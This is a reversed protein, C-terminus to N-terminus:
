RPWYASYGKPLNPFRGSQPPNSEPRDGASRTATSFGNSHTPIRCSCARAGPYSRRSAAAAFGGHLRRGGRGSSAGRRRPTRHAGFRHVGGWRHDPRERAPGPLTLPLRRQRTCRRTTHCRRAVVVRGAPHDPFEVGGIEGEGAAGALVRRACREARAARRAPGHRRHPWPGGRQQRPGGM